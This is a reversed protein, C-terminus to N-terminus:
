NPDNEIGVLLSYDMIGMESLMKSDAELTELM